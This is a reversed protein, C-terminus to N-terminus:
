LKIKDTYIVHSDRSAATPGQWHETAPQLYLSCFCREASTLARRENIGRQSEKSCTQYIAHRWKTWRVVSAYNKHIAVSYTYIRYSLCDVFMNAM